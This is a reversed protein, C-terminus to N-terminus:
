VRPTSSRLSRIFTPVSAAFTPWWGPLLFAIEPRIALNHSHRADPSAVWFFERYDDTAYWVPSGWPTGDADATALTMYQNADIIARV